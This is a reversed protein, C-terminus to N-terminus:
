KAQSGAKAKDIAARLEDGDLILEDLDTRKNFNALWEEAETPNQIALTYVMAPLIEEVNSQAPDKLARTIEGDLARSGRLQIDRSLLPITVITELTDADATSDENASVLERLQEIDAESANGLSSMIHSFKALDFLLMESENGDPMTIAQNNFSDVLEQLAEALPGKAKVVTGTSRRSSHREGSKSSSESRELRSSSKGNGGDRASGGKASGEPASAQSMRGGFFGLAAFVLSMAIAGPWKM